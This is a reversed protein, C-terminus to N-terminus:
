SKKKGNVYYFDMVLMEVVDKIIKNREEDNVVYGLTDYLEEYSKSTLVVLWM